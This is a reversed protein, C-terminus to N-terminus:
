LMAKLADKPYTYNGIKYPIENLRSSLKKEDIEGDLKIHIGISHTTDNM